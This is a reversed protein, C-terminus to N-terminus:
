ALEKEEHKDSPDLDCAKELDCRSFTGSIRDGKSTETGDGAHRRFPPAGACAGSEGAASDADNKISARASHNRVSARQLGLGNTVVATYRGRFQEGRHESGM